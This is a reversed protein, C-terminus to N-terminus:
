KKKGPKTPPPTNAAEEEDAARMAQVASVARLVSQTGQSRTKRIYRQSIVAPVNEADYAAKIAPLHDECAHLITNAIVRPDGRQQNQSQTQQALCLRYDQVAADAKAITDPSLTSAHWEQDPAAAEKDAVPASQCGALLLCACALPLHFRM